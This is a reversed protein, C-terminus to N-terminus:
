PLVGVIAAGALQGGVLPVVRATAKQPAPAGFVLVAGVTVAAIGVVGLTAALPGEFLARNRASTLESERAPPCHHQPDCASNLTAIENHRLLYVVGAGIVLAGGAGM